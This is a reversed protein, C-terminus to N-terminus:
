KTTQNALMKQLNAQVKSDNPELQTAIKFHLVALEERQTERYLVGLNNHILHSNPLLEHAETLFEEAHEFDNRIMAQVGYNSLTIGRGVKPSTLELNCLLFLLGVAIVAPGIKRWNQNRVEEFIFQVAPAAFLVLVPVLPFRYRGFVFFAIVTLAFAAAILYLLWLSRWKKGTLILGLIALPVLTGFHFIFNTIRLVPSWEAVTYQDETDIIELANFTMGTKKTLLALWHTPQSKIYAASKSLYHQSVQKPTLKRGAEEEALRVADAQEYKADGRGPLLPQYTGNANANNGIYFNPGLQSTTLHFHGGITYNRLVVPGLTLCLGIGMAMSWAVRASTATEKLERCRISFRSSNGVVIWLGLIPILVLANERTLCLAGTALGIGLWYGFHKSRLSQTFLFLLLSLFFLDLISKQILGELFISPAYLALILGAIMGSRKGFLNGAAKMILLCSVAGLLAQVRRVTLVDDGIFQYIVGLFCPYLPAQYFVGEGLWSGGALTKAWQDYRAADGIKYHFIPSAQLSLIHMMRVLIAACFVIGYELLSYRCDINSEQDQQTLSTSSSEEPQVSQASM